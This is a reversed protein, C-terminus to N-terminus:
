VSPSVPAHAARLTPELVRDALQRAWVLYAQGQRFGAQELAARTAGQYERVDALVPAKASTQTLANQVIREAYSEYQPHILLDLSQSRQGFTVRMWGVARSGLEWVYDERDGLVHPAWVKRGRYLAAWEEYTMAEAARVNAPVAANYLQFLAAEDSRLRPRAPLADPHAPRLGPDLRYIAGETYREFGARPAVDVGLGEDGTHLIVRRAGAALARECAWRLLEVATTADDTRLHDIDWVLGGARARAIVMGSMQGGVQSVGIQRETPAPIAVDTILRLLTPQRSEPPTKPWTGATVEYGGPPQRLGLAMADTARMARIM